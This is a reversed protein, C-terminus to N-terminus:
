HIETSAAQLFLVAERPQRSNSPTSHPINLGQSLSYIRQGARQSSELPPSGVEGSNTGGFSPLM